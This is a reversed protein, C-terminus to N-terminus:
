PLLTPWPARPPISSSVHPGLGFRERARGNSVSGKFLPSAMATHDDPLAVPTGAPSQPVATDWQVFGKRSRGQESPSGVPSHETPGARHLNGCPHRM